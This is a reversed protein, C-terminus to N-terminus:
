GTWSSSGPQCEKPSLSTRAPGPPSRCSTCRGPWGSAPLALWWIAFRWSLAASVDGSVVFGIGTGVLEGGIILSYMRGREAAPFYDGTLSAIAPVAAASVVGLSVRALLLWLYSEAAGSLLTALSWTVVTIALLRTRRTRDTLVGFPLTFVTGALAVVSLLRL